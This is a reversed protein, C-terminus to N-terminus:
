FVCIETTHFCDLVGKLLEHNKPGCWARALITRVLRYFNSETVIASGRWIGIVWECVRDRVPWSDHYSFVGYVSRFHETNARYIQYAGIRLCLWFQTVKSRALFKPRPRTSSDNM